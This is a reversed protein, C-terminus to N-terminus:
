RWAILVRREPRGKEKEEPFREEAVTRIGHGLGRVDVRPKERFERCKVKSIEGAVAVGKGSMSKAEETAETASVNM